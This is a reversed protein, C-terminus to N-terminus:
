VLKCLKAFRPLSFVSSSRRVTYRSLVKLRSCMTNETMTTGCRMTGSLGRCRTGKSCSWVANRTAQVQAREVRRLGRRVTKALRSIEMGSKMTSPCGCGWLRYEPSLRRSTRVLVIYGLGTKGVTTGRCLGSLRSRSVSTSTCPMAQPGRYLKYRINKRQTHRYTMRWAGVCDSARTM